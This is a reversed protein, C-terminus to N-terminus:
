DEDMPERRAEGTAVSLWEDDVAQADPGGPGTSSWCLGKLVAAADVLPLLTTTPPLSALRHVTGLFVLKVRPLEAVVDGGLAVALRVLLGVGETLTTVLPMVGNDMNDSASSGELLTQELGQLVDAEVDSTTSLELVADLEELSAHLQLILRALFTPARLLVTLGSDHTAAIFSLARLVSHRLARVEPENSAQRYNVLRVLSEVAGADHSWLQFFEPRRLLGILLRVALERTTVDYCGLLSEVPHSVGDLLSRFVVLQQDFSVGSDDDVLVCLVRLTLQLVSLRMLHDRLQSRALRQATETAAQAHMSQGVGDMAARTNQPPASGRSKVNGISDLNFSALYEVWGRPPVSSEVCRLYVPVREVLHRLLSAAEPESEAAVTRSSSANPPPMITRNGNSAPLKGAAKASLSSTPTRTPLKVRSSLSAGVSGGVFVRRSLAWGAISESDGLGLSKASADGPPPVPDWRSPVSEAVGLLTSRCHSSGLLITELVRLAADVTDVTGFQIFGELLPLLSAIPANPRRLMESLTGFMAFSLEGALYESVGDDGAVAMVGEGVGHVTKDSGTTPGTIRSGMGSRPPAVGRTESRSPAVRRSGMNSQLERFLADVQISRAGTFQSTGPATSIGLGSAAAAFAGSSSGDGLWVPPMRPSVGPTGPGMLRGAVMFGPAMGGHRARDISRLRSSNTLQSTYGGSPSLLSGPSTFGGPGLGSPPPVFLSLSAAGIAGSSNRRRSALDSVSKPEKPSPAAAGPSPMAWGHPGWSLSPTQDLAVSKNKGGRGGGAGGGPGRDGLLDLSVPEANVSFRFRRGMDLPTRKPLSAEDSNGSAPTKNSPSSPSSASSTMARSRAILATLIVPRPDQAASTDSDLADFSANRLLAVLGGYTGHFLESLLGRNDAEGSDPAQANGLLTDSGFLEQSVAPRADLIRLSTLEDRIVSVDDVARSAQVARDSLGRRSTGVMLRSTIALDMRESSAPADDLLLASSGGSLGDGESPARIQDGAADRSSKSPAPSPQAFLAGRRPSILMSASSSTNHRPPTPAALRPMPPSVSKLASSEAHLRAKGSRGRHRSASLVVQSPRPPAPSLENPPLQSAQTRAMEVEYGLEIKDREVQELQGKLKQVQNSSERHDKEAYVLRTKMATLDHQLKSVKSSEADKAEKRIAIMKEAMEAQKKDRDRLSAELIKTRGEKLRVESRLSELEQTRAELERRTRVLEAQTASIVSASVPTKGPAKNSQVTTSPLKTLTSHTPAASSSQPKNAPQIGGTAGLQGAMLASLSPPAGKSPSVPASSPKQNTSTGGPASTSSTTQGPNPGNQSSSPSPRSQFTKASAFSPATTPVKGGTTGHIGGSNALSTQTAYPIEDMALLANEFADDGDFYGGPPAQSM